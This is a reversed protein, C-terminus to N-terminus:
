GRVLARFQEGRDFENKFIGFSAAGPSLLVTDGPVAWRRAAALAEEMSGVVPFEGGREAKVWEAELLPLLKDTAEGRFLVVAKARRTLAAALAGFDLQKDAGGALVVLPVDGPFSELAAMAAEPVTAATDNYYRIGDREGVYELRHPVGPFERVAQGITEPEVGWALAAGTAALLNGVQHRGMLKMGDFSFLITETGSQRRCVDTGRVFLGDGEWHPGFRLVQGKAEALSTEIPPLGGPVVAWDQKKQHLFIEAKDRWYAELSPYYNLHDAFFNTVVAIAPSPGAAHLGSLRWSSLEAVAVTGSKLRSWESLLGTQGIGARVVKEGAAELIAAILSATTTKGKTGTIGIVPIPCHELFVAADTTVPVGHERALKVYKDTWRVAPTKVVLDAHTFDEPRHQGLVFTVNPLGDLEDVSARLEEAPKLDTVVVERAGHEAFFRATGSGGHNSGLGFVTVRQGRFDPPM